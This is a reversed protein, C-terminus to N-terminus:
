KEKARYLTQGGVISYLVDFDKSLVVLDALKDKEISGLDRDIGLLDAQNKSTLKFLDELGIDTGRYFNKIGENYSLVSGAITGDSLSSKGDRLRIEQGALDYDGDGLGGARISDSILLIRDPGKTDLVIQYVSKDIHFDDCIIEVYSDGRLAAGVLGPNRHGLGTMANFLHTVSRAGRELAEKSTQYDASSHGLSFIFDDGYKEILGLAGEIEPALTIIKITDRYKLILDEDVAIIDEELQAGKKAKSIFPGEMHAGLVRAGKSEREMVYSINDLAEQIKKKGMTMTTPLFSTVGKALVGQAITELAEPSADMADSGGYGHIHIDIFGPLIYEGNLNIIEDVLKKDFEELDIIKRIREDFILVKDEILKERYYIVGGSIAKM